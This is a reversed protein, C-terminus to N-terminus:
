KSAPAAAIEIPIRREVLASRDAVAAVVRLVYAAPALPATDLEFAIERSSAHLVGTGRANLRTPSSGGGGTLEAFYDISKM